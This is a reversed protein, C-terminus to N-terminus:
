PTQDKKTPRKGLRKAERARYEDERLAAHTKEVDKAKELAEVRAGLDDLMEAQENVAKVLQPVFFPVDPHIRIPENM